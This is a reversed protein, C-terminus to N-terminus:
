WVVEVEEDPEEALEQAEYFGAEGAYVRYEGAVVARAFCPGCLHKGEIVMGFRRTAYQGIHTAARSCPLTQDFGNVETHAAETVKVIM